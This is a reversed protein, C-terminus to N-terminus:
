AGGKGSLRERLVAERAAKAAALEGRRNTYKRAKLAANGRKFLYVTKFADRADKEADWREQLAIRGAATLALEADAGIRAMHRERIADVAKAFGLMAPQFRRRGLIGVIPYDKIGNKRMRRVTSERDDIILTRGDKGKIFTLESLPIHWRRSKGGKWEFVDGSIGASASTSFPIAMPDNSYVHKGDEFMQISQPLLAPVDDRSAMFSQGEVDKLETPNKKKSSYGFLRSAVMRQGSRGSRFNLGAFQIVKRKHHDVFDRFRGETMGTLAPPMYGLTALVEGMSVNIAINM